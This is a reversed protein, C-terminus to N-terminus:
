ENSTNNEKLQKRRVFEDLAERMWGNKFEQRAEDVTIWRRERINKEPWCDFEQDVLLPFMSGWHIISGRKSMYRWKGLEREINGTVGAEELTERAAAQEMSEDIDWGGKPFLMSQGNQSTIVLVELDEILTKDISNSQEKYRYPICGVVLRYGGSDYRQLHRGSRSVVSVM